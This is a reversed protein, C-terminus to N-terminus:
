RAARVLRRRPTMAQGSAIGIRLQPFGQGEADALESSGCCRRSSRAPRRPLRADGRRRDVERPAGAADTVSQALEALRAAVRELGAPPLEEGLRTFGVLDAFAVTVERAAPSAAGRRRSPRRSRPTACRTASTCACARERAARRDAAPVGGVQTAFREALAAEDLSPDYALEFVIESFQDAVQRLAHGM